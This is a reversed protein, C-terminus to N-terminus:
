TDATESQPRARELRGGLDEVMALWKEASVRSFWSEMLQPASAIVRHVALRALTLVEVDLERQREMAWAVADSPVSRGKQGFAAVILEAAAIVAEADVVDFYDDQRALADHLVRSLLTTDGSRRLSVWLDLATDNEFPGNGWAGM